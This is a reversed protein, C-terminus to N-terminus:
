PTPCVMIDPETTPAASDDPKDGCASLLALALFIARIM